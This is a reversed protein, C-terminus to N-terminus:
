DDADALVAAVARRSFAAVKADDTAGALAAVGLALAWGRARRWTDDDVEGAASRFTGHAAVPLLSWAVALDTAPDGATLDGFDVVGAVAGDRVVINGPHLDGHLWVKPRDFLEVELAADWARRVASGDIQGGLADIARVTREHRDALPVARFPNHPADVPAPRHLARLFAGISEAARLPDVPPSTAADAGEVWTVVSWCWPFQGGPQGVRVPVPIPLPLGTALEPLWRQEMEILAAGAEHRPLRVALEDGLRFVVNDWGAAVRRVPLDALDAHQRELLARVLEVDVVIASTSVNAGHACPAGRVDSALPLGATPVKNIGPGAFAERIARLQNAALRDVRVREIDVVTAM